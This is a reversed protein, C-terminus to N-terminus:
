DAKKKITLCGIGLTECFKQCLMWFWLIFDFTAWIVALHLYWEEITALNDIQLGLRPANVLLSGLILPGFAGLNFWPFPSKTLRALILRPVLKAFTSTILLAFEALHGRSGNESLINSFPSLVWSIVLFNYILFPINQLLAHGLTFTKKEKQARHVNYICVPLHCVVFALLVFILFADILSANLIMSLQSIVSLQPFLATLSQRWVGPGLFGTILHVCCAILIGENPGNVYGLYLVGTHYEEWTSTWMAWIGIMVIFLGQVSHGLGLCGVQILGGLPTNLSDITHDFIHGLASSTKTRRAQRGDVNDFTQYLFLGIAFAFYVWSSTPGILDPLFIFLTVVNFLIFGLGSLTIMNPAMSMPFLKVAFDWYHRLVYKMLPSKDVAAYRYLHLNKLPIDGFMPENSLM